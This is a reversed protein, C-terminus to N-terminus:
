RIRFTHIVHFSKRQHYCSDSQVPILHCVLIIKLGVHLVGYTYRKSTSIIDHSNGNSAAAVCAVRM